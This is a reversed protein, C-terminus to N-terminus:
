GEFVSHDLEGPLGTRESENEEGRVNAKNRSSRHDVELRKMLFVLKLGKEWTLLWINAWSRGKTRRAVEPMTKAAGKSFLPSKTVLSIISGALTLRYLLLIMCSSVNVRSYADEMDEDEEIDADGGFIVAEDEIFIPIDSGGIRVVVVMIDSGGFAVLVVGALREPKQISPLGNVQGREPISREERWSSRAVSSLCYPENINGGGRVIISGSRYVEIGLLSADVVLQPDSFVTVFVTWCVLVLVTSLVLVTVAEAVWHVVVEGTFSVVEAGGFIFSVVEAGGFIFSVVGTGGFIFSVEEAGGFIFSVVEAGGFIFSVVEAGGFIFSVVVTIISCGLFVVVGIAISFGVGGDLIGIGVILIPLPIFM